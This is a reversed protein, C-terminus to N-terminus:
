ETPTNDPNNDSSTNDSIIEDGLIKTIDSLVQKMTNYTTKGLSTDTGDDFKQINSEIDLVKYRQIKGAPGRYMYIPTYTVEDKTIKGTLSTSNIKILKYGKLVDPVENRQILYAIGEVIATKGIGANGILLASKEPTLLVILTKKIESERAIAPNCVYQKKTLDEGYTNLIYFDDNEEFDIIEIEKNM